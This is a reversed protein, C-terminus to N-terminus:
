PHTVLVLPTLPGLPRSACLVSCTKILLSLTNPNYQILLACPNNVQIDIWDLELIFGRHARDRRSHTNWRM